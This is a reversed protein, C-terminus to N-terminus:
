VDAEKPVIPRSNLQSGAPATIPTSNLLISAPQSGGRPRQLKRQYNEEKQEWTVMRQHATQPVDAISLQSLRLSQSLSLNSIPQQKVLQPRPTVNTPTTEGFDSLDVYIHKPSLIEEYIPEEQSQSHDDNDETDEWPTSIKLPRPPLRPLAGDTDESSDTRASSLRM